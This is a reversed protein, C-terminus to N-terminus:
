GLRMCVLFPLCSINGVLCALKVWGDPYSVQQLVDCLHFTSFAVSEFFLIFHTHFRSPYSPLLHQLFLYLAASVEFAKKM